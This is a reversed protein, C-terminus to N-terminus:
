LEESVLKEWLLVSGHGCRGLNLGVLLVGPTRGPRAGGFAPGAGGGVAHAVSEAGLGDQEWTVVGGFVLGDEVVEAVVEGADVEGFVAEDAFHGVGFPTQAAATKVLFSQEGFGAM